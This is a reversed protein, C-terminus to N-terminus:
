ESPTVVEKQIKNSDKNALIPSSAGVMEDHLREIWNAVPAINGLLKRLERDQQKTSSSILDLLNQGIPPLINNM